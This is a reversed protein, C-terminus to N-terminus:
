APPIRLTVEDGPSVTIEDSVPARASGIPDAQFRISTLSRVLYKPLTFRTQSNGGALGLRVRRGGELAYITMDPFSQNDVILITPTNPDVDTEVRNRNCGAALLGIVAFLTATTVTRM